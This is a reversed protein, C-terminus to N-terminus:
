YTFCILLQQGLYELSVVCVFIHMYYIYVSMYRHRYTSTCIWLANTRPCGTSLLTQSHGLAKHLITSYKCIIQACM